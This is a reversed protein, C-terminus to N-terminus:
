TNPSDRDDSRSDCGDCSIATEVDQNLDSETASNEFAYTTLGLTMLAVAFISAAKKM